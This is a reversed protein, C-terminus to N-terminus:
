YNVLEATRSVLYDMVVRACNSLAHHNSYAAILPEGISVYEPLVRVLCSGEVSACATNILAIGVGQEAASILAPISKSFFRTRMEIVNLDSGDLRNISLANKLTHHMCTHARLDGPHEPIGNRSLYEASAYLGLTSSCLKRVIYTGRKLEGFYLLLDIGDKVLDPEEDSVVVEVELKQHIALLKYFFDNSPCDLFGSPVQIRVKGAIGIIASQLSDISLNLNDISTCCQEFLREGDATCRLSQTSRLILSTGLQRELSILRRSLTNAPISLKKSAKSLIGSRVIQVFLSIDNLM